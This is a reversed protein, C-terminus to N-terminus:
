ISEDQDYFLYFVLLKEYLEIDDSILDVNTFTHYAYNIMIMIM